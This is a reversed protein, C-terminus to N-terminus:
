KQRPRDLLAIVDDQPVSTADRMTALERELRTVQRSKTSATARHKHERAWEWLFGVLVGAVIGFFLLMFVPLELQWTVGLFAALDDPMAKLLVPTRNALAVILLALGVAALILYRLFRFM